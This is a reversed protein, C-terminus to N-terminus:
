LLLERDKQLVAQVLDICGLLALVFERVPKFPLPRDYRIRPLVPSSPVDEVDVELLEEWGNVETTDSPEEDAVLIERQVRRDGRHNRLDSAVVVRERLAAWARGDHRVEDCM